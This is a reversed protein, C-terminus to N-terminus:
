SIKWLKKIKLLCSYITSQVPAIIHLYSAPDVPLTRRLFQIRDTNGSKKLYRFVEQLLAKFIFVGPRKEKVLLRRNTWLKQLTKDTLTRLEVADTLATLRAISSYIRSYYLDVLQQNGINASLAPFENEATRPDRTENTSM